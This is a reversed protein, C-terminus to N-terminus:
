GNVQIHIRGKKSMGEWQSLSGLKKQGPKGPFEERKRDKHKCYKTILNNPPTLSITNHLIALRPETLLCFLTIQM